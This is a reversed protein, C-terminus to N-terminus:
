GITWSSNNLWHNQSSNNLNYCKYLKFKDIFLQISSDLITLLQLFIPFVLQCPTIFKIYLIVLFTVPVSSYSQFFNFASFILIQCFHLYLFTLVHNTPCLHVCNSLYTSVLLPLIFSTFYYITVTPRTLSLLFIIWFILQYFSIILM